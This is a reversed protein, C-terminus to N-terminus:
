NRRPPSPTPRRRSLRHASHTPRSAASRVGMCRSPVAAPNQVNRVTISIIRLIVCHRWEESAGSLSFARDPGPKYNWWCFLGRCSTKGQTRNLACKTVRLRIGDEDGLLGDDEAPTPVKGREPTATT